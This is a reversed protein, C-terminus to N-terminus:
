DITTTASTGLRSHTPAYVDDSKVIKLLSKRPQGPRDTLSDIVEDIDVGLIASFLIKRHLVAREAKTIAIEDAKDLAAWSAAIAEDMPADDDIASETAPTVNVIKPTKSKASKM